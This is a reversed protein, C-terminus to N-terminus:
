KVLIFKNEQLKYTGNKQLPSCIDQKIEIPLNVEDEIIKTSSIYNKRKAIKLEKNEIELFYDYQLEAKQNHNVRVGEVNKSINYNYIYGMMVNHLYYEVTNINLLSLTRVQKLQSTVGGGYKSNVQMDEPTEITILILEDENDVTRIKKAKAISFNLHNITKAALFLWDFKRKIAFRHGMHPNDTLTFVFLETSDIGKLFWKDYFDFTDIQTTTSYFADSLQVNPLIDNPRLESIEWPFSPLKEYNHSDTLSKTSIEVDVDMMVEGIPVEEIMLEEIEEVQAISQSCCISLCILIILSKM